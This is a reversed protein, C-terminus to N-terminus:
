IGGEMNVNITDYISICDFSVSVGSDKKTFEFNKLEQIYPNYILAETIYRQLESTYIDFDNVIGILSEAESGFDDDYCIYHYRDTKLAKYIWVKLADIGYLLINKSEKDVLLCNKEFDYAYEQFLPLTELEKAKEQVENSLPQIFPFISM